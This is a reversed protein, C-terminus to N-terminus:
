SMIFQIRDLAVDFEQIGNKTTANVLHYHWEPVGLTVPPRHLRDLPYHVEMDNDEALFYPFQSFTSSMSPLLIKANRMICIADYSSVGLQLQANPFAQLLDQVLPSTSALKHDCVIWIPRQTYGLHRLLDQYIGVQYGTEFQPNDRIHLVVTDDSPPPTPCCAPNLAFWNRLQQRVFDSRMWDYHIFFAAMYILEITDTTAVDDKTLASEKKNAIATVNDAVFTKTFDMVNHRLTWSRHERELKANWIDVRQNGAERHSPNRFNAFKVDRFLTENLRLREVWEPRTHNPMPLLANPFCVSAEKFQENRFYSQWYPRYIIDWCLSTAILNALGIEFFNNGLLGLLNAVVLGHRSNPPCTGVPNGIFNTAPLDSAKGSSPVREQHSRM